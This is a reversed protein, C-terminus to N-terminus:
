EDAEEYQSQDYCDPCMDGDPSENEDTRDGCRNCIIETPWLGAEEESVWKWVMVYAGPDDGLSVEADDDIELEGDRVEVAARYSDVTERRGPNMEEEILRAMANAIEQAPVFKPMAARMVQEILAIQEISLSVRRKRALIEESVPAKM